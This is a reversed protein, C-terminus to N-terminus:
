RKAKGCRKGLDYAANLIEANEEAEVEDYWQGWVHGDPGHVSWRSAHEGKFDLVTKFANM